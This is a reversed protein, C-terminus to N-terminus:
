VELHQKVKPLITAPDKGERLMDVYRDVKDYCDDCVIEDERTKFIVKALNALRNETDNEQQKVCLGKFSLLDDQQM